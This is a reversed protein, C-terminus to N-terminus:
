LASLSVAHLTFTSLSTDGLWGPECCSHPWDVELGFASQRRSRVGCTPYKQAGLCRDLKGAQTLTLTLTLTLVQWSLDHATISTIIRM